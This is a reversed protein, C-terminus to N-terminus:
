HTVLSDPPAATNLSPRPHESASPASLSLVANYVGDVVHAMREYDLTAATDGPSHYSPNRLFSTDTVMVAPIGADWYSRQDSADIGADRPGTFSYVPLSHRFDAGRMARKVARTLGRDTWRGVVAAFDGRSPYLLRLVASPWPQRATFYGIMELCIMGQVDKGALSRAHVASGMWPSAFYPPEENAFAVLDVRHAPPRASLLRALELLGATGSANDDAGPNAGFDGFADYHAGVILRRGEEPGITAVVNRYTRGRVQWVQEEVRAGGAQLEKRLYLAALDLSAPHDSDRPLADRTLFGVSRRLRGADARATGRYPVSGFTPQTLLCAATAGLVTVAGAATLLIRVASHLIRRSRRSKTM